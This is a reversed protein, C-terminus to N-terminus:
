DAVEMMSKRMERLKLGAVIADCARQAYEEVDKRNVRWMRRVTDEKTEGSVEEFTTVMICYDGVAPLNKNLGAGPKLPAHQWSFDGVHRGIASDIAIVTRHPHKSKSTEVAEPLGQAGIWDYITGMVAVGYRKVNRKLLMDGLIPAFADGNTWPDGVNFILIPGDINAIAETIPSLDDTMYIRKDSM